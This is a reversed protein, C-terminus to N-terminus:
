AAPENGADDKDGLDEDTEAGPFSGFARELRGSVFAREV